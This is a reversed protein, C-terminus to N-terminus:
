ARPPDAVVRVATIRRPSPPRHYGHTIAALDLAVSDVDALAIDGPKIPLLVTLTKVYGRCVECTETRYRAGQDDGILAAARHHDANGCYPCRLWGAFWGSGCRACRYQRSREVGRAEALTAWAGCVPCYGPAWSRPVADYLTRRAAHLLPMAGLSAVPGLAGPEADVDQAFQEFEEEAIAARLLARVHEESLREPRLTAAPGGAAAARTFLHRLWATARALDISFVADALLPSADGLPATGRIVSGWPPEDLARRVEECLAVWSRLEPSERVSAARATTATRIM